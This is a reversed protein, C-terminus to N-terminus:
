FIFHCAHDDLPMSFFLLAHRCFFVVQLPGERRRMTVQNYGKKEKGHKEKRPTEEKLLYWTPSPFLFNGHLSFFLLAQNYGKEIRTEKLLYWTPSPFIFNGHTFKLFLSKRLCFIKLM